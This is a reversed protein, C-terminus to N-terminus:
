ASKRKWPPLASQAPAAAQQPAQASATTSGNVAEYNKIRNSYSGPKDNREEVEIKLLMPKGHLESSDRPRLVGVARCISSLTAQAIKVATENKNKLNLRDFLRRGRHPGEVIEFEVKLFEGTKDKTAEFGSAIAVGIYDGAPLPEFDSKPDVTSADFGELNGSM